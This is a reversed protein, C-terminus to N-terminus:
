ASKGHQLNRGITIIDTIGYYTALSGYLFMISGFVQGGFGVGFFLSIIGLVLTILGLLIAIGAVILSFIQFGMFSNPKNALYAQVGGNSMNDYFTPYDYQLENMAVEMCEEPTPHEDIRRKLKGLKVSRTITGWAILGFILLTFWESGNGSLMSILLMVTSLTLYCASIVEIIEMRTLRKAFGAVNGYYVDALLPMQQLKKEYALTHPMLNNVLYSLGWVVGLAVVFSYEGPIGILDLLPYILIWLVFYFSTKM